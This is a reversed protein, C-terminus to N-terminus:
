RPNVHYLYVIQDLYAFKVKDGIMRIWLDADEPLGREICAPDYRYGLSRRYVYSGDTFNMASPPWFGYGQGTAPVLSRGYVFDAGTERQKRLLSEIADPKFEDDDACAAIWEGTAMELGHNLAELGLVCWKQGPDEPYVQHPLNWFRIRDDHRQAEIIVDVSAQDTGDGVVLIELNQHTQRQVSPLSRDRLLESRNYTPIIVSVLDNM